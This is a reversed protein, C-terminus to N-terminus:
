YNSCSGYGEKYQRDESKNIEFLAKPPKFIFCDEDVNLKLALLPTVTTCELHSRDESDIKRVNSLCRSDASSASLAHTLM